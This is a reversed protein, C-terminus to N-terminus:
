LQAREIHIFCIPGHQYEEEDRDGRLDEDCRRLLPVDDRALGGVDPQRRLHRFYWIRTFPESHWADLDTLLSVHGRGVACTRSSIM